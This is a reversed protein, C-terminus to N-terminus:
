AKPKINWLYPFANDSQLVVSTKSDAAFFGEMRFWPDFWAQDVVYKNLDKAAQTAAADDGTQITKLYGDVKANKVHFPNWVAAPAIEFNAVQWPTPDQQLPFWTAAYKPTLVDSIANNNPVQTYKVTIGVAGLYQKTLDFVTTGVFGFQPMSLTLGSAYGAEKLLQKAKNPDYPYVDDLAADYGANTKGFIQGSVTGDGKVVAKLMAKRDIAYNIAQRVKLNALAPNMKGNRDFLILGQWNQEMGYLKLGASKLQAKSNSDFLVLGNAQGGMLANVQATANEYVNFVLKAYHQQDKAWYNPNKTFVYKSGIVTQGSDLIYPGSGVPHTKEDSKGFNAPSEQLGALQALYTLLTPDPQTLTIKLTSDDVATANRLNQLEQKGPSTGDRFRLINKAAATANFPTGDSFKVGTRLKMTLVTKDANYKWSTALWPEVKADPTERLLTDYVAQMFPAENAWLAGSAAFTTVQTVSGLTLTGNGDSSSGTSSGGSCATLSLALAAAGVMCTVTNKSPM